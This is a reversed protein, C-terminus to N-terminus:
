PAGERVNTEGVIAALRSRMQPAVAVTKVLSDGNVHIVIPVPGPWEAFLAALDDIHQRRSVTVHWGAVRPPEAGREYRQVDNATVSLELPVEEGPTAGRRERLRLRGNVILIADEIFFSQLGAYQKPFVVVEVSGTMDEVTAILMQAQAKTMTRRVSTVLGAIRVSAEDEMARLDKVAVAGGRVLAEAVDALPHGSVFIGLTEKEWGLAELTTPPAMPRLKPTLTPTEAAEGFLSFQGLERDRAARTAGELAADLADLLQARNGPLTDFAGCKILAEYVKRNVAKPDVRRACDFFDVFKGGEERATLVSRVANEGVGKIAALGFRIQTGVVAFDVLSENIDPPLVPVGLKKAEEIYEVLKDTKDKVSTMLAAFYAIPHNAKLYATQYSIWGYAAAHSKNFGYGAFPEVFAFIDEAMKEDMGSTQAAGAIFKERYVPIKDKQKKGMVKRLEDAQGMTFGAVDRAIQMVQEQYCNHSAVGDAIFYPSTQDEMQLDFCEAEGSYEISEIYVPRTDGLYLEEYSSRYADWFGPIRMLYESSPLIRTYEGRSRRNFCQRSIRDTSAPELVVRARHAVTLVPMVNRELSRVVRKTPLNPGGIMEAFRTGDKVFVATDTVYYAIKLSSLLTAVQEVLVPSTSRFSRVQGAYTGDADWLGSLVSLRDADPWDLVNAPLCKGRCTQEWSRDGYTEDLWNTLLSRKPDSRFALAVYWARTNFSITTECAFADRARQAIYDADERTACTVNKSGNTKLSGGGVLLGLVYARDPGVALSPDNKSTKWAEFLMSEPVNAQFNKTIFSRNPRLERAQRDGVPTPFRHDESCEITTGTSLRIRLLRKTGSPWVKAAKGPSTSRTKVDYTLIEDGAAVDEIAKMTGDAYWVPTGARLCAIGYTERLIPELKQHLYTVKTRGHKNSIYQPIWDMPGPRYLAVLAIIDDLSSPKMEICVRRMGESELQFVGLTEGRGLMEFTRADDDPITELTFTPNTTRRIEDTAAKMVTLNRLGLFDMKLLGVREVNSMEYQTNVDNDGIKVLPVHEILPNKSIVVGAAHTSAHRALGEISSATDLLRRIQPNFDYLNKLEDIKVLADKISLGGPGSPILKAVRDVDPLPVALARGADRIAARAAMTGFTVIQAVRDKGYKQTVYAIVEDRREVCFDTDIDPMSIREPNLFREFILKFKIPDLDTIRLCYSVVSGVASGRGPGVPIDRDRAFKIFDWVILFYSSFGMSIIVGLEYEMRERLAVDSAAREAGYREVLGTECIERLYEDATREPLLAVDAPRDSGILLLTEAAGGPSDLEAVLDVAGGTQPSPNADRIRPGSERGPADASPPASPEARLAKLGGRLPVPYDPLYFVKEPIKLDIRKVIELTNDCAEPIDAFLQRMEAPSKVYFEDSYFKMRSTDAVTKGTGICLLVDHAQADGRALYHSDNTAVLPLSLERAISILGNNIVDEEPMGHRMIEIYFRDGFIDRFMKANSLATARDNKLLPSACLSSMCGSLVILGAHHQALLDMDIRPKYYYGELFGKSILATLNKYGEDSAALLTIHAEDRVTRDFRGRPAIYAECGIIPVLAYKRATDYFDVAGFMVGHDTLAVGPSGDIASSKCLDEVRCAGDLLSYESHVHL